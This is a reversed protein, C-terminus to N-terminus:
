QSVHKKRLKPNAHNTEPTPADNTRHLQDTGMRRETFVESDTTEEM